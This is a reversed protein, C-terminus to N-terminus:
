NEANRAVGVDGAAARRVCHVGADDAHRFEPQPRAPRDAAAARRRELPGFPVRSGYLEDGLLPHGRSACQVRIQHTRGTELTSRAAADARALRECSMRYHLIALKGAPDTHDVVM